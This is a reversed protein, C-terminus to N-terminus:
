DVQRRLLSCPSSPPTHQARVVVQQNRTPQRQQQLTTPASAVRRGRAAVAAGASTPPSPAQGMPPGPGNPGIRGLRAVREDLVSQARRREADSDAHLFSCRDGFRCAPGGTVSRCLRLEGVIQGQPSSTRQPSRSQSPVQQSQPHVLSRPPSRAASQRARTRDRREELAGKLEVMDRPPLLEHSFNCTDAARCVGHMIFNHCVKPYKSIVTQPDVSPGPSRSPRQASQSSRQDNAPQQQQGDNRPPQQAHDAQCKGTHLVPGKGPGVRAPATNPTVAAAPNKGKPETWQKVEATHQSRLKDLREMELHDYVLQVLASWELQDPTKGQEYVQLRIALVKSHKLKDRILSYVMSGPMGQSIARKAFQDIRHIWESLKDYGDGCYPLAALDQMTRCSDLGDSIHLHSLIAHFTRRGSLPYGLNHADINLREIINRLSTDSSAKVKEKLAQGLKADLTRLEQPCLEISFVKDPDSVKNGCEKIWTIVASVDTRASAVSVNEEVTRKWSEREMVSPLAPVVVTEHERRHVPEPGIGPLPSQVQPVPAYSPPPFAPTQGFANPSGVQQGSNSCVNGQTTQSLGHAISHEQANDLAQTLSQQPSSYGSQGFHATSSGVVSEAQPGSAVGAGAVPVSPTDKHWRRQVGSGSLVSPPPMSSVSCSPGSQAVSSGGVVGSPVHQIDLAHQAPVQQSPSPGFKDLLEKVKTDLAASRLSLSSQRPPTNDLPPMPPVPPHSPGSSHSAVCATHFANQWKASEEQSVSLQSRLHEISNVHHAISADRESLTTQLQEIINVLQGIKVKANSAEARADSVQFGLVRATEDARRGEEHAVRRWDAIHGQLTNSLTELSQLSRVHETECEARLTDNDLLLQGMQSIQQEVEQRLAANQHVAEDLQSSKDALQQRLHLIVSANASVSDQGGAECSGHQGDFSPPVASSSTSAAVKTPDHSLVPVLVPVSQFSSASPQQYQQAIFSPSASGHDVNQQQHSQQAVHPLAGNSTSPPATHSAADVAMHDQRPDVMEAARPAQMSQSARAMIADIAANDRDIRERTDATVLSMTADPAPQQQSHVDQEHDSVLGGLEQSMDFSDRPVLQSPRPPTSRRPSRERESGPAHGMPTRIAHGTAVAASPLTVSSSTPAQLGLAPQASSFDLVGRASPPLSGSPAVVPLVVSPVVVAPSPSQSASLDILAANSQGVLPLVGVHQHGDRLPQTNSNNSMSDVAVHTSVPVVQSAIDALPLHPVIPQLPAQEVEFSDAQVPPPESVDQLPLQQLEQILPSSQGPSSAPAYSASDGVSSSVGTGQNAVIVQPTVQASQGNDVSQDSAVLAGFSFTDNAIGPSPSSRALGSPYTGHIPSKGRIRRRTVPTSDGEVLPSLPRPPGSPDIGAVPDGVSRSRKSSGGIFQSGPGRHSAAASLASEGSSSAAQITSPLSSPLSSDM